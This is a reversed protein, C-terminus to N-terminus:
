KLLGKESRLILDKIEEIERELEGWKTEVIKWHYKRALRIHVERGTNWLDDRSEHTHHEEIGERFREGDLLISLDPTYLGRNINELRTLPVGFIMGWAKGTGKYDELLTFRHGGKIIMLEGEFDRRNQAFEEQAREASWGRPNGKRLYDNINPGTPELDYVPYKITKVSGPLREAVGAIVSSKGINNMGYIAVVIGKKENM